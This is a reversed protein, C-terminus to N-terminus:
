WDKKTREEQDATPDKSGVLEMIWEEKPYPVPIPPPKQRLRDFVSM